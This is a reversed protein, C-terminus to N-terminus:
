SNEFILSVTDILYTGPCCKPNLSLIMKQTVPWKRPSTVPWQHIGRVFALSASSQYKRQDTGSYVTSNVIVLSSIQSAMMGMIADRYNICTPGHYLETISPTPIKQQLIDWCLWFILLLPFVSYVCFPVMIEYWSKLNGPIDIENTCMMVAFFLYAYLYRILDVSPTIINFRCTRWQTLFCLEAKSKMILLQVHWKNFHVM